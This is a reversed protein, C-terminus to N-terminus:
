ATAMYTTARKRGRAKLKKTALGERLVRPMERVDLNLAKRIEEARMGDKRKSVLGVIEDLAAAIEKASRRHLRGSKKASSPKSVCSWAIKPPRGPARGPRRGREGRLEDLSTERLVNIIDSALNTALDRLTSRLTPMTPPM